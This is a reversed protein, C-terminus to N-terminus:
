TLLQCVIFSDFLYVIFRGYAVLAIDGNGGDGSRFGEKMKLVAGAEALLFVLNM